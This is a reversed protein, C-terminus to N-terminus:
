WNQVVLLSTSPAGKGGLYSIFVSFLGESKASTVPSRAKSWLEKSDLLVARGWLCSDYFVPVDAFIRKKYFYSSQISILRSVACSKWLLGLWVSYGTHASVGSFRCESFVCLSTNSRSMQFSLIVPLIVQVTPPLMVFCSSETEILICLSRFISSDLAPTSCCLCSASSHVSSTDKGKGQREAVDSCLALLLFSLKARRCVPQAPHPPPVGADLPSLRPSWLSWLGGWRSWGGSCRSEVGESWLAQFHLIM